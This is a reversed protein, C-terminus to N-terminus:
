IGGQATTSCVSRDTGVWAAEVFLWNFVPPVFYVLALAAIITLVADVPTAFLNTRMWRVVGREALPPTQGQLMEQRVFSLNTDTM